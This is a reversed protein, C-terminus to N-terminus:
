RLAQHWITVRQSAQTGLNKALVCCLAKHAVKLTHWEAVEGPLEEGKGLSCLGPGWCMATSMIVRWDQALREEKMSKSPLPEGTGGQEKGM